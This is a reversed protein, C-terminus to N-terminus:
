TILNQHLFIRVLENQSRAGTRERLKTISKEVASKSKNMNLAIEKIPSGYALERVICIEDLTIEASKGDIMSNIYPVIQEPIQLGKSRALIISKVITEVDSNKDIFALIGERFMRIMWFTSTECTYIIVPLLPFRSKIKKVNSVPDTKGIFLDLMLVDVSQSNLDSIADELTLSSGVVKISDEYDDLIFRLGQIIAPHDDVIYVKTLPENLM